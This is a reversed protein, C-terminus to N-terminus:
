YPSKEGEMWKDSGTLGQHIIQMPFRWIWMGNVATFNTDNKFTLIFGPKEASSGFMEEYLDMTLPSQILFIGEDKCVIRDRPTQQSQLAFVVTSVPESEWKRMKITLEMPFHHKLRVLALRALDGQPLQQQPFPLFQDQIQVFHIGILNNDM